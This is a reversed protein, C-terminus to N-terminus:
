AHAGLIGAPAVFAPHSPAAIPTARRANDTEFLAGRTRAAHLARQVDADALLGEAAAQRLVTEVWDQGNWNSNSVYVGTARSLAELKRRDERDLTALPLFAIPVPPAAINLTKSIPGWNTLHNFGIEQVIELHRLVHHKGDAKDEVEWVIAWHRGRPDIHNNFVLLKVDLPVPPDPYIFDVDVPPLRGEPRGM